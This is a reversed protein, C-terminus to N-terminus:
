EEFYSSDIYINHGEYIYLVERWHIYGYYEGDIYEEKEGYSLHLTHTQNKKLINTKRKVVDTIAGDKNYYVYCITYKSRISNDYAGVVINLPVKYYCEKDGNSNVYSFGYEGLKNYELLDANESIEYKNKCSSLSFLVVFLVIFIYIKRM